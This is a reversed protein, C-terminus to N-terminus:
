HQAAVADAVTQLLVVIRPGWRSAIDDNLPVIQQKAVATITSWGPRKAVSPATAKCCITDALFIMDPNAKIIYEASLQPYGGAAVAGAAKDAISRLGLLGLVRGVFTTSTVSFYDPELEYYYSAPKATKAAGAAIRTIQARIQDSEQKAQSVHGTATGLEGFESYVDGLQAAAPLVLVPVSLSELRKRLGNRDADVLVLDPKDALLSEVNPELGSLKTRPAQKPYNSFEDVAKVQDGAGIAYLMETATASLSIIAAPRQAIRVPGGSTTVTVPFGSAATGTPAPSPSSATTSSGCAVVSLALLSSLATLIIGSRRKTARM